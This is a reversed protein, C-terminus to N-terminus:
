GGQDQSSPVVVAAGRVRGARLDAIARATEALPYVSVEAEPALALVEAVDARTVNAVSRLVREGWLRAYAFSPIDSMHIEACVVTGGPAVAALALPVLEGAPAFLLAADLAAAPAEDTGGAWVAGLSRAFEQRRVDGPRTFAHVERGQARAMRTVLHAAAGFGFIGLSGAAGALRLARAGIAGACLLPAARVPELGAPVPLAFRADATVLGALGGDRDLGTFMAQACLNERGSRCHGCVGCAGALWALGVRTGLRAPDVGAGVGAVRGVVQHGPVVLARPAALDGDLIHLDTRCIACAEVSLLLEGPGPDPKGMEVIDGQHRVTDVVFARM